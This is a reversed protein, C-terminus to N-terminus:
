HSRNRFIILLFSILLVGNSMREFLFKKLQETRHPANLNLTAM